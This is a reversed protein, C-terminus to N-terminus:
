LAVEAGAERPLIRAWCDALGALAGRAGALSFSGVTAGGADVVAVAAGEALETLFWAASPNSELPVTVAGAGAEGEIAWRKDDIDISFEVVRPPASWGGDAVFVRSGGDAHVRIGFGQGEANATEAACWAGGREWDYGHEVAWGGEAHLAIAGAAVAGAMLVALGIIRM